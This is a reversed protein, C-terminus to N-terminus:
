VKYIDFGFFWPWLLLLDVDSPTGGHTTDGFIEVVKIRGQARKFDGGVRGELGGTTFASAHTEGM